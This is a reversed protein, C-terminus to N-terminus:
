TTSQVGVVEIMVVIGISGCYGNMTTVLWGGHNSDGGCINAVMAKVVIACGCLSSGKLAVM